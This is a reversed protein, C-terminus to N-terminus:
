TKRMPMRESEKKEFVKLYKHFQRSIMEEVMRLEILNEEEEEEEKKEEIVRAIKIEEEVTLKRFEKKERKKGKREVKAMRVKDTKNGEV